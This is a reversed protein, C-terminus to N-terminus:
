SRIPTLCSQGPFSQAIVGGLLSGEGAVRAGGPVPDPVIQYAPHDIGIMLRAGDRLAQKMADDLEFRLFHVSSTKSENEREMDEDAIAFVRAQNGVQM